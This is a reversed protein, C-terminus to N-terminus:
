SLLKAFKKAGAKTCWEIFNYFDFLPSSDRILISQIPNFQGGWVWVRVFCYLIYETQRGPSTALYELIVVFTQDCSDNAWTMILIIAWKLLLIWVTVYLESSKSPNPQTQILKANVFLKQNFLKITKTDEFAISSTMMKKNERNRCHSMGMWHLYEVLSM